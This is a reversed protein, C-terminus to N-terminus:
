PSDRASAPRPATPTASRGAETLDGWELGRLCTVVTM